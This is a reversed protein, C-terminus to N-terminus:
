RCFYKILITLASEAHQTILSSALGADRAKLAELIEGRSVQDALWLLSNLRHANALFLRMHGIIRQNETLGALAIRTQPIQADFIPTDRGGFFVSGALHPPRHGSPESTKVLARSGPARGQQM